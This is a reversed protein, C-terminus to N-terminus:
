SGTSQYRLVGWNFFRYSLFFFLAGVLPSFLAISFHSTHVPYYATVGLPVVFLFLKRFWSRYISLPYQAVELGGYTFINILELAESTWFALAGQFVFLAYFLLATGLVSLPLAVLLSLTFPISFLAWITVFLAQFFRGLRMPQIDAAALQIFPDVPKLLFRDFDGQKIVQPLVDFGRAFTEAISFAMQVVGYLLSIQSLTWGQIANFQEVLVFLAFFDIWTSLFYSFILAFFSGRYEMKLRISILALESYAM